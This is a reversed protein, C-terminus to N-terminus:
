VDYVLARQDSTCVNIIIRNEDSVQITNRTYPAYGCYIDLDDLRYLLGSIALLSYWMNYNIIYIIYVSFQVNNHHHEEFLSLKTRDEQYKESYASAGRGGRNHYIGVLLVVYMNIYIYIIFLPSITDDQGHIFMTIFKYVQLICM